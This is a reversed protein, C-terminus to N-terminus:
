AIILLVSVATSGEKVPQDFFDAILNLTSVDRTKVAQNLLIRV